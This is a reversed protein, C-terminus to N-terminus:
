RPAQSVGLHPNRGTASLHSPGWEHVGIAASWLTSGFGTEPHSASVHCRIV